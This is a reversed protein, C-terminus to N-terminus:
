YHISSIDCTWDSARLFKVGILKLAVAQLTPARLPASHHLFYESINRGQTDTLIKHSFGLM